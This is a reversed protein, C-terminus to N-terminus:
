VPKLGGLTVWGLALLALGAVGFGGLLAGVVGPAMAAAHELQAAVAPDGVSEGLTLAAPLHGALRARRRPVPAFPLHTPTRLGLAPVLLLGAVVPQGLAMGAGALAAGLVGALLRSRRRTLQLAGRWWPAGLPSARRLRPAWRRPPLRGDADVDPVPLGFRQAGARVAEVELQVLLRPPLDDALTRAWHWGAGLVVLAAGVPLMVPHLLALLPLAALATVPWGSRGALRRVHQVGRPMRGGAGLWPLSLALPWLPASWALLVVCLVLGPLLPWVSLVAVGACGLLFALMLPVGGLRWASWTWALEQRASRWWWVLWARDAPTM